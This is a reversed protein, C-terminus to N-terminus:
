FFVVLICVLTFLDIFPTLEIVDQLCNNLSILIRENAEKCVISTVHKIFFISDTEPTLSQHEYIYYVFFSPYGYETM